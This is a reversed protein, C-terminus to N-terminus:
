DGRYNLILLDSDLRDWYGRQRLRQDVAARRSRDHTRIGGTAHINTQQTHQSNDPLDRSGVSWENLPTRGVTAHRQAHDLFKTSSSALAPAPSCLWLFLLYSVLLDGLCNVRTPTVQFKSVAPEDSIRFDILVVDYELVSYVYDEVYLLVWGTTGGYQM